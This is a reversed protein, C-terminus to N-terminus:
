SYVYALASLPRTFGLIGFEPLLRTGAAGLAELEVPWLGLGVSLSPELM